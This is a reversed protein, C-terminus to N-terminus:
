ECPRVLRHESRVQTGGCPGRLAAQHDQLATHHSAKVLLGPCYLLLRRHDEKPTVYWNQLITNTRRALGTGQLLPSHQLRVLLLRPHSPAMKSDAKWLSAENNKLVKGYCKTLYSCLDTELSWKNYRKIKTVTIVSFHM